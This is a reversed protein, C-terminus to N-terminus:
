IWTKKIWNDLGFDLPYLAQQGVLINYNTMKIVTCRLFIPTPPDKSKLRDYYTPGGFGDHCM